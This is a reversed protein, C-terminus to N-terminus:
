KYVLPITHAAQVINGSLEEYYIIGPNMQLARKSLSDASTNFERYIHNFTIEKEEIKRKAELKAKGKLWDIVCQSNIQM